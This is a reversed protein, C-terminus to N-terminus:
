LKLCYRGRGLAVLLLPPHSFHTSLGPQRTKSRSLHSIDPEWPPSPSWAGLEAWVFPSELPLPSSLPAHFASSSSSIFRSALSAKREILAALAPACLLMCLLGDVSIRSFYLLCGSWTRERASCHSSRRDSILSAPLSPSPSPPTIKWACQLPSSTTAFISLVSASSGLVAIVESIALASRMLSIETSLLSRWGFRTINRPAHVIPSGSTIRFSYMDPPLRSSKRSLFRFSLPPLGKAGGGFITKLHDTSSALARHKRCLQVGVMMWRSRFGAFRKSLSSPCMFTPSKPRDLTLSRCFTCPVYRMVPFVPLM